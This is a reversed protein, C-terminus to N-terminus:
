GITTITILCMYFSDFLSWGELWHFGVTGIGLITLLFLGAGALRIQIRRERDQAVSHLLSELTHIPRAVPEEPRAESSHGAVGM